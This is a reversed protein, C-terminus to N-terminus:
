NESKAIVEPVDVDLDVLAALEAATLRQDAAAKDSTSFRVGEAELVTRYNDNREPDPWRFDHAVLGNLRFV